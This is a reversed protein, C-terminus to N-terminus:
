VNSLEKIELSACGKDDYFIDFEDKFVKLM